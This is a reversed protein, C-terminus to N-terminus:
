LAEVVHASALLEVRRDGFDQLSVIDSGCLEGGSRRTLAGSRCCRGTPAQLGPADGASRGLSMRHEIKESWSRWPGFGARHRWDPKSRHYVFHFESLERPVKKEAIRISGALRAIVTGPSGTRRPATAFCVIGPWWRQPEDSFRQGNTSRPRRM